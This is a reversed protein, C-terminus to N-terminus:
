VPKGGVLQNYSPPQAEPNVAKEVGGLANTALALPAEAAGAAGGLASLGLAGLTHIPQAEQNVGGFAEHKMRNVNNIAQGAEQLPQGVYPLGYAEKKLATGFNGAATAAQQYWPTEEKKVTPEEKKYSMGGLPDMSEQPAESTKETKPEDFANVAPAQGTKIVQDFGAAYNTKEDKQPNYAQPTDPVLGNVIQDFGEYENAM